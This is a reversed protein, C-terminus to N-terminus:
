SCYNIVADAFMQSVMALQHDQVDEGEVMPFVTSWLRYSPARGNLVSLATFGQWCAWYKSEKVKILLHVYDDLTEVGEIGLERLGISALGITQSATLIAGSGLTMSIGDLSGVQTFDVTGDQVEIATVGAFDTTPTLVVTDDADM